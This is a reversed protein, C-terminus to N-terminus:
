PNGEWKEVWRVIQEAVSDIDADDTEVVKDAREYCASRKTMLARLRKERRDGELLPRGGGRTRQLLTEVSARLYVVTGAARLREGNDAACPAGGGTALVTPPDRELVIKLVVAERARFGGEGEAAFIEPISRGDRAEIETDLDRFSGGLLSAVREGVASKGAGPMGILIIM